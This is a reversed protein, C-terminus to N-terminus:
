RDGEKLVGLIFELEADTFRYLTQDVFYFGPLFTKSSTSISLSIVSQEEGGLLEGSRVRDLIKKKFDTIHQEEALSLTGVKESERSLFLPRSIVDPPAAEALIPPSAVTANEVGNYPERNGQWLFFGVGAVVLSGILIMKFHFSM